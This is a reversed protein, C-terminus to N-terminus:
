KIWKDVLREFLLQDKSGKFWSENVEEEMPKEEEEEELTKDVGEFQGEFEQPDTGTAIEIEEEGIGLIESIEAITFGAADM